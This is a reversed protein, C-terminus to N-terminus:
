RICKFVVVCAILIMILTVMSRVAYHYWAEKNIAYKRIKFRMADMKIKHDDVVDALYLELKMKKRCNKEIKREFWRKRKWSFKVERCSPRNSNGTWIDGLYFYRHWTNTPMITIFKFNFLYNYFIIYWMRIMFRVLASLSPYWFWPVICIFVIM